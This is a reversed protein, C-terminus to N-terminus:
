VRKVRVTLGDVGSPIDVALVPVLSPSGPDSRGVPGLVPADWSGRFGTGDYELTLKVTTM